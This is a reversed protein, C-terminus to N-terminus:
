YAERRRCRAPREKKASIEMQRSMCGQGAVVCDPISRASTLKTSLESALAAEADFASVWQQNLEQVADPFGKQMHMIAGVTNQGIASFDHSAQEQAMTCEEGM